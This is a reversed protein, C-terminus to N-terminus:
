TNDGCFSLNYTRQVAVNVANAHGVNEISVIVIPSKGEVGYQIQDIKQLKFREEYTFTQGAELLKEVQRYPKGIEKILDPSATPDWGNVHTAPMFTFAPNSVSRLVWLRIRVDDGVTSGNTFSIRWVGGRLTIDGNFLATTIGFDHPQLGGGVQWFPVSSYRYMNQAFCIGDLPTAGTTHVTSNARLSRFKTMWTSSDWLHKNFARRSIKKTRFGMTIGRTTLSSYNGIKAPRPGRRKYSSKRKKFGGRRPAMVRKRKYAM